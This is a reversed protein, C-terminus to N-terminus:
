RWAASSCRARPTSPASRTAAPPTTPAAGGARGRARPRRQGRGDPPLAHHQARRDGYFNRKRVELPDCGSPSPSRRSCGSAASWARRAASAAFPPTPSPTPRSRCRACSSRRAALLLQRRPVARPRHGPRVPRGVLRLPRRLDHRPGPHPGRRRLRGRLRGRLRPAQRHDGHRRRPRPPGQRRPRDEQRRHRASAPSCTARPRRAASAAAWAASRSRSPTRPCTWCRPWWTSSRARTSPRPTSRSRTTRARCRWRSRARSISISRAASACGAPWGARHPRSRAGQRRRPAADAPRDGPRRDAAGGRRRPDGAAGRVRDVALTAARRAQDRTDAAVAFIPQGVFQVLDTALLPEDHRHTPSVDNEGPVDAATLVCVVGPAARVPTSTSAQHDARAGQDSLGLQVHLLGAPEPLDDIYLAEGTVHRHASDHTRPDHVGGQVRDSM